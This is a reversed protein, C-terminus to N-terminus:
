ATGRAEALLWDRVIKIEARAAFAKPTVFYYGMGSRVRTKFPAVLRGAEIDSMAFVERTIAFGLGYVAMELALASNEHLVQRQPNVSGVGAADLWLRWDDPRRMTTLLSQDALIEPDSPDDIGELLLPSCVPFFEDDLLLDVKLDPWNGTGIRVAADVAESAFDVDAMSTTVQITIQPHLKRFRVLRPALWKQAFSPLLSLTVHNSKEWTANRLGTSISVFAAHLVPYLQEGTATLELVRNHRRFLKIGIFDELAKVQHTIAAPTVHMEESARKMSMHRAAAEFARLSKLPPLNSIPVQKM